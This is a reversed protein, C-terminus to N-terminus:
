MLFYGVVVSIYDEVDKDAGEGSSAEPPRDDAINMSPSAGFLDLEGYPGRGAARAAGVGM